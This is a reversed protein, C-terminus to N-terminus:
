IERGSKGEECRGERGEEGGTDGRGEGGERIEVGRVDTDMSRFVISDCAEAVADGDGDAFSECLKELVAGEDSGSFGAIRLSSPLPFSSSSTLALYCSTNHSPFQSLPQCHGGQLMESCMKPPLKTM